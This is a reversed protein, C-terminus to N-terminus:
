FLWEFINYLFNKVFDDGLFTPVSFFYWFDLRTEATETISNTFIIEIIWNTFVWALRLFKLLLFIFLVLIYYKILIFFLCFCFFFFCLFIFLNTQGKEKKNLKKINKNKKVKNNNKRRKIKRKKQKIIFLLYIQKDKKM